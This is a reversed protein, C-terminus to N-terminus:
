DEWYDLQSATLMEVTNGCKILYYYDQGFSPIIDFIQKSWNGSSDVAYVRPDLVSKVYRINCRMIQYQKSYVLDLLEINELMIVFMMFLKFVVIYALIKVIFTLIVPVNLEIIACLLFLVFMLIVFLKISYRRTANLGYMRDFYLRHFEPTPDVYGELEKADREEGM